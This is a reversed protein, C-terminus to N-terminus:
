VSTPEHRKRETVFGEYRDRALDYQRKWEAKRYADPEDLFKKYLKDAAQKLAYRREAYVAYYSDKKQALAQVRRKEEGRM